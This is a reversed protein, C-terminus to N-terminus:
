FPLDDTETTGFFLGTGTTPQEEPPIDEDEGEDWHAEAGQAVAIGAAVEDATFVNEVEGIGEGPDVVEDWNVLFTSNAENNTNTRLPSKRYAPKAAYKSSIRDLAELMADYDRVNADLSDKVALTEALRDRGFDTTMEERWGPVRGGGATELYELAETAARQLVVFGHYNNLPDVRMLETSHRGMFTILMSLYSTLYQRSPAAMQLSGVGSRSGGAYQCPINIGTTVIRFQNGGSWPMSMEVYGPVHASYQALEASHYYLAPNNQCINLLTDVENCNCGPYAVTLQIGRRGGINPDTYRFAMTFAGAKHKVDVQMGETCNMGMLASLIADVWPKVGELAIPDRLEGLADPFPLDIGYWRYLTHGELSFSRVLQRLAEQETPTAAIAEEEQLKPTFTVKRDMISAKQREKIRRRRKRSGLRAVM